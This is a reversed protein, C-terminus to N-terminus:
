RGANVSGWRRQEAHYVEAVEPDMESEDPQHLHDVTLTGHKSRLVEGMTALGKPRDWGEHWVEATGDDHDHVSHRARFAAEHLYNSEVVLVDELTRDDMAAFPAHISLPGYKIPHAKFVERLYKPLADRLNALSVEGSLVAVVLDQCVDQRWQEPVRRTMADIVHLMDHEAPAQRVAFPWFAPIPKIPAAYKEAWARKDAARESRSKYNPDRRWLRKTKDGRAAVRSVRTRPTTLVQFGSGQQSIFDQVYERIRPEITTWVEQTHKVRAMFSALSM